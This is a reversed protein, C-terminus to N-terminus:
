IKADRVIWGIEPRLFLNQSNQKVGVFGSLFEMKYTIGIYKWIFPAKALGLPFQSVNISTHRSFKNFTTEELLDLNINNHSPSCGTMINSTERPYVNLKNCEGSNLDKIYPFFLTIWGTVTAGGSGDNFKYISRWFFQDPKGEAALIFQELVPVLADIWWELNFQALQKTISLLKQWDAITGELQIQPIGCRTVVIYEFYSQMSDMLVVEMAAKETLGTTSFIPVLLDHTAEGIHQRISSSFETFVGSWENLPSGKEFDDRIVIIKAKGDHQVFHSRLEEANCNIHNALGQSILLWIMDPSLSLPRHDEFAQHIAAILPHFRISAVLRGSYESCAEITPKDQRGRKKIPEALLLEVAKYYPVELLPSEAKEVDSVDFINPLNGISLEEALLDFVNMIRKIEM